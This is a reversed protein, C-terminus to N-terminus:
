YLVIQQLYLILIGWWEKSRGNTYLDLVNDHAAYEHNDDLKKL